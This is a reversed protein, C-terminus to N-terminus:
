RGDGVAGHDQASSRRQGVAGIKSLPVFPKANPRPSNRVDQRPSSSGTSGTTLSGSGESEKRDGMALTNANAYSPVQPWAPKQPTESVFMYDEDAGIDTLGSYQSLMSSSRGRPVHPAAHPNFPSQYTQPAYASYGNQQPGFMGNTALLNNEPTPPSSYGPYPPPQATTFHQLATISQYADQTKQQVTSTEADMNSVHYRLQAEENQRSQLVQTREFDRKQKATMDEQHKASIKDLEQERLSRRSVLKERKSEMSAVEVKLNGVEREADGKANDFDRDTAKKGRLAEQWARKKADSEALEAAPIEGFADIHAKLEAVAEEAQTKHTTIQQIRREQKDDLGGSSELKVKLTNTERRIDSYAGRHDKKNKRTRHRAENLKAEASQISQKLTTIPSSPRLSSHQPQIPAAAVQEASPVSQTILRIECLTRGSAIGVIECHFIRKPVLGFIEGDFFRGVIHEDSEPRKHDWEEGIASSVIRTSTWAAGNVRVFFPKSKDIGSSVSVGEDLRDASESAAELTLDVNFIVETDRVESIWIRNTKSNTNTFTTTTNTTMSNAERADDAADRQEMEKVFTVKTSAIAAWLPQQSRVQNAQKRKKKSTSERPKPDRPGQLSPIAPARSDSKPGSPQHQTAPEASSLDPRGTSESGAFIELDVKTAAPVQERENAKVLSRRICTTLGQSVIHIGLITRFVTFGWGREIPISSFLSATLPPVDIPVPIAMRHIVSRLYNLATLHIARYRLVHVVCVTVTCTAISYTPGGISAAAGSLSVAIVAHSLDLLVTQMLKPVALWCIWFILDVILITAMAPYGYNSANLVEKMSPLASFSIGVTPPVFTLSAFLTQILLVVTPPLSLLLILISIADRLPYYALITSVTSFTGAVPSQKAHGAVTVGAMTVPEKGADVMADTYPGEEEISVESSARERSGCEPAIGHDRPPTQSSSDTPNSATSDSHRFRYGSNLGTSPLAPPSVTSAPKSTPQGNLTSNSRQKTVRKGPAALGNEHRKDHQNPATKSKAKPPM